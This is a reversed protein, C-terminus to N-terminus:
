ANRASAELVISCQQRQEYSGLGEVLHACRAGAWVLVGMQVRRICRGRTILSWVEMSCHLDLYMGSGVLIAEEVGLWDCYDDIEFRRRKGLDEPDVVM